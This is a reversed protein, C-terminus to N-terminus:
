REGNWERHFQELFNEMYRHREDAIRRGPETNMRDKLLFLKEHFHNVTTSAGSFYTEPSNHFQHEVGPDHMEQGVAGGFAFARAIGLAGIADLRDADQVIQSELTAHVDAVGAGKFSGSSVIYCVHDILESDADCSILWQRAVKPGIETDGDHFKWDAIDHLLAGLQVVTMDADTEQGIRIAMQWVRHVHWWDHGTAYGLMTRKVYEATENILDTATKVFPGRPNIESRAPNM